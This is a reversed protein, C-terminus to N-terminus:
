FVMEHMQHDAYRNVYYAEFADLSYKYSFDSPLFKSGGFDPLLHAGRLLSDLHVVATLRYENAGRGEMHPKVRWMGTVKDPARGITKFWEVLACPYTIGHYDFSFFMKVRAANLGKMGEKEEDEVILACDYRAGRNRWTPTARIRERKMGRIGSEDSPAYFTAVASNFV